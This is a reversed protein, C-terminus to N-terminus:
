FRSITPNTTTSTTTTTLNANTNGAKCTVVIENENGMTVM